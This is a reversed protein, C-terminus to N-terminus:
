LSKLNCFREQELRFLVVEGGGDGRGCGGRWEPNGLDSQLQESLVGRHRGGGEEKKGGPTGIRRGERRPKALM